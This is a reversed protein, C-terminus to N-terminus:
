AKRNLLAGKQFIDLAKSIEIAAESPFQWLVDKTSQDSVVILSRGSTQDITFQLEPSIASVKSQISNVAATLEHASPMASASAAASFSIAENPPSTLKASPSVAEPASASGSPSPPLLNQSGGLSTINSMIFDGQMIGM